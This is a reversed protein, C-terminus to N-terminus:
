FNIVILPASPRVHTIASYSSAPDVDSTVSALVTVSVSALVSRTVDEVFVCM